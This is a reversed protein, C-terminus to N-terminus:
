SRSITADKMGRKYARWAIRQIKQYQWSELGSWTDNMWGFVRFWEKFKKTM